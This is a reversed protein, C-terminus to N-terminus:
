QIIKNGATHGTHDALAGRPLHTRHVPGRPDHPGREEALAASRASGGRAAPLAHRGARIIRCEDGRTTLRVAKSSRVLYTVFDM